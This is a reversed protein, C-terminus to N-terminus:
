RQALYVSVLILGGGALEVPEIPEHLLMAGGVLSVLPIMYLFWSAREAGLGASGAIWCLMSLASSGIAVGITVLWDQTTMHNLLAATGPAGAALMPITAALMSVATTPLAGRRTTLPPSIVCYLAWLIAGFLVLAIGKPDGLAPGSDRALLVIGSLAMLTALITRKGPMRRHLLAAIIVIMLPEAGDLLGTLGASVTKQGITAPLSFGAIGILGYVAGLTLDRRTWHRAQWIAPIFVASAIAYRLGLFALAPLGGQNEGVMYRTAIPSFGWLCVSLLTLAYAAPTARYLQASSM